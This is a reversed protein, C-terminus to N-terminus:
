RLHKELKDVQDHLSATIHTEPGYGRQPLCELIDYCLSLQDDRECSYICEWAVTMLQDPDGLVKQQSDPRSHQFVALPLSLDQRSLTVLYERLLAESAGEMQKECRHLFPVMWQFVDKVYREASSNKMLLRLKDIDSLQQLDRLTLSLERATEYVLTEMTVLDDCLRELGPIDREKGLRVLSLACDVQRSCSDIDQARIRYWDTLLDMTPTATRFRLWDPADEYLFHDHDPLNQDLVTRCQDEECWDM